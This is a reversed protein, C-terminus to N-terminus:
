PCRCQRARILEERVRRAVIIEEGECPTHPHIRVQSRAFGAFRYAEPSVLQVGIRPQGELLKQTLERHTLGLAEEDWDLVVHPIQQGVGYPLQRWVRARDLSSVVKIVHAVRREWPAMEAIHDRALYLELARVL